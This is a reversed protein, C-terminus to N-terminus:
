KNGTSGFGGAGRETESLEAVEEVDPTVIPVIVIQAIRDGANIHEIDAGTTNQLLVKYEGRYDKDILGVGNALNIGRTALSSREMLQIAVPTDSEVEISLGTSVMKPSAGRILSVNELACIDYGASESTKRIPLKAKEDLKKVLIKM